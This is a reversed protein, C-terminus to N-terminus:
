APPSTADRTREARRLDRETTSVEREDHRLNQQALGVERDAATAAKGAAALRRRAEALERVLDDEEEHARAAVEEARAVQAASEDRATVAAEHLQRAETAAREVKEWAARAEDRARQERAEQRERREREAVTEHDEGPGEVDTGGVVRLRGRAPAAKEPKPRAPPKPPAPAAAPAPDSFSGFGAYERGATLRGSLIEAAAAPDALAATLTADLEQAVPDGIKQGTPQALRRARTVLSRVLQRRQTSLERLAPGDLSKEAERLGEGLAVIQGALAADDRVLLNVLWAAVTPKRLEGVAAALEKDGDAKAAKVAATRRPIFEAPPGGYLDDVVDDLDSM